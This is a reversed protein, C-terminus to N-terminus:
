ARRTLWVFEFPVPRDLHPERRTETWESRDFAPYYTDGEPSLHVETLVQEEAGAELALAYVQAGGIVMLPRDGHESARAAEMATAVDHAVLVADGRWRRDRTLVITTCDPVPGGMEDYTTRGLLVAHHRVTRLYHESDAPINWPVAGHRAIVGNDAVAAVLVM